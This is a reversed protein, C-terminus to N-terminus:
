TEVFLPKAPEMYTWCVLAIANLFAAMCFYFTISGALKILVPFLLSSALSGLARLQRVRDADDALITDM